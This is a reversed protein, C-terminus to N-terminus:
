PIEEAAPLLVVVDGPRMMRYQERALRELAAPDERLRRIRAALEANRARTEEIRAELQQQRARAAALDRYSGLAAVALLLLAGVLVALLLPPLPKSRKSPDAKSM